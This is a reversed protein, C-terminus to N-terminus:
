HEPYLCFTLRGFANVRAAVDQNTYALGCVKLAEDRVLSINSARGSAHRHFDICTRAERLTKPNTYIGLMTRGFTHGIHVCKYVMPKSELHTFLVM